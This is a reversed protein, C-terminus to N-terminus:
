LYSRNKVDKSGRKTFLKALLYSLVFYLLFLFTLQSLSLLNTNMSTYFGDKEYAYKSAIDYFVPNHMISKASIVYYILNFISMIFILSITYKTKSFCISIMNIMIPIIIIGLLMVIMGLNINIISMMISCVINLVFSILISKYKANLKLVEV